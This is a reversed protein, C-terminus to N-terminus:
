NNSWSPLKELASPRRGEPHQDPRHEAAYRKRERRRVHTRSGASAPLINVSIPCNYSAALDSGFVPLGAQCCSKIFHPSRQRSKASREHRLVPLRVSRHVGTKGGHNIATQFSIAHVDIRIGRTIM